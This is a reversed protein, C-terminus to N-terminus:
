GLVTHHSRPSLKSSQSTAAASTRTLRTLCVFSDHASMLNGAHCRADDSKRDPLVASM